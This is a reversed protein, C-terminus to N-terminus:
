FAKQLGADKLTGNATHKSKMGVDVTFYRNNIPSYWIEHDGSGQRHFNCGAQTLIKKVDRGFGAM